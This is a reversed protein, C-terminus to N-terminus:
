YYRRACGHQSSVGDTPVACRSPSAAGAQSSASAVLRARRLRRRGESQHPGFPAIKPNAVHGQARPAQGTLRSAVHSEVMVTQTHTKPDIEIVGLQEDIEDDRLKSRESPQTADDFTVMVKSKPKM